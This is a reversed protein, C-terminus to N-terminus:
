TVESNAHNWSDSKNGNFYWSCFIHGKDVTYFECFVIEGKELQYFSIREDGQFLNVFSKEVTIYKYTLRNYTEIKKNDVNTFFMYSLIGIFVIAFPLFKKFM